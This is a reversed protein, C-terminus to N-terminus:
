PAHAPERSNSRETEGDILLASFAGWVRACGGVGRVRPSIRHELDVGGGRGCPKRKRPRGSQIECGGIQFLAMLLAQTVGCPLFMFSRARRLIELFGMLLSVAWRVGNLGHLYSVERLHLLRVGRPRAARATVQSPGVRFKCVVRRWGSIGVFFM